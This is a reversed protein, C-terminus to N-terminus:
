EIRYTKAKRENRKILLERLRMLAEEKDTLMFPKTSWLFQRQQM